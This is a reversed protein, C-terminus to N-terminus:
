LARGASLGAWSGCGILAALSLAADRGGIRASSIPLASRGGGRGGSHACGILILLAYVSLSYAGIHLMPPETTSNEGAVRSARTRNGALAANYVKQAKREQGGDGENQPLTNSAERQTGWAM